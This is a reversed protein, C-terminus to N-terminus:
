EGFKQLLSGAVNVQVAVTPSKGGSDIVGVSQLALKSAALQV